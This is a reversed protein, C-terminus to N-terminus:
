AFVRKVYERIQDRRELSLTQGIFAETQQFNEEWNKRVAAGNGFRDVGRGTAATTHFRALHRAIRRLLQADVASRALLNPLMGEEPLRRMHVAPEIPCGDGGIHFRGDRTVVQVVGLYVDPCLRRNLRVEEACDAERLQRSSFDVFGLNVPKQVHVRANGGPAGGSLRTPRHTVEAGEDEADQRELPGPDNGASRCTM